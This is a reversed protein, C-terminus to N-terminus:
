RARRACVRHLLLQRRHQVRLLLPSHHLEGILQPARHLVVNDVIKSGVVERHAGEERLVELGARGHGVVDERPEHALILPVASKVVGGLAARLELVGM